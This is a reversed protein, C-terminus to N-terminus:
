TTAKRAPAGRSEQPAAEFVRLKKNLNEDLQLIAAVNGCKILTIMAPSIDSAFDCSKPHYNNNTNSFSRAAM